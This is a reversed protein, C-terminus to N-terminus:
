SKDSTSRNELALAIRELLELTRQTVALHQALYSDYRAQQRRSFFFYAGILILLPAANVMQSTLEESM